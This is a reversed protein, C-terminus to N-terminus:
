NGNLADMKIAADEIHDALDRLMCATKGYGYTAVAQASSVILMRGPMQHLWEKCVSSMLSDSVEQDVDIAM